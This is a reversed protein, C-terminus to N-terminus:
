RKKSGCCKKYKKNSGCNCRANLKQKQKKKDDVNTTKKNDEPEEEKTEAKFRLLRHQNHHKMNWQYFYRLYPEYCLLPIQM